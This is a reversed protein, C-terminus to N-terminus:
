HSDKGLDFPKEANLAMKFCSKTLVNCITEGEM